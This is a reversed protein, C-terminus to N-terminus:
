NYFLYKSRQVPKHKMMVCEIRSLDTNKDKATEKLKKTIENFELLLTDTKTDNMLM